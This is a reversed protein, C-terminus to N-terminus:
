AVKRIVSNKSPNSSIGSPFSVTYYTPYIKTIKGVKTSGDMVVKDGVSLDALVLTLGITEDETEDDSVSASDESLIYRTITTLPKGEFMVAPRGKTNPERVKVTDTGYTYEIRVESAEMVPVEVTKVGKSQGKKGQAKLTKKHISTLSAGNSLAKAPRGRGSKVVTGDSYTLWTGLEVDPGVEESTEKVPVPVVPAPKAARVVTPRVYKTIKILVFGAANRKKPAGKGSSPVTTGDAYTYVSGTRTESEVLKVTYTKNM